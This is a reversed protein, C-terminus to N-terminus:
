HEAAGHAQGSPTFHSCTVRPNFQAFMGNPNERYLWVHRDFHPVFMHAEDASTAPDDAMHDYPIGHFSPPERHGAARWAQEFVLNEIAVLRWSGDSQPEYILIGPHLFDTHTGTGDVRGNLPKGIKLLEPKFYHVGMAGLERPQGMQAADECAPAPVYGEARAVEIDQYKATAVRLQDLTPEGAASSAAAAAIAAIFPVIPM